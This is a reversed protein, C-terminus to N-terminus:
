ADQTVGPGEEHWCRPCWRHTRQRVELFYEASGPLRRVVEREEDSLENWARLRGIGCRPCQNNTEM